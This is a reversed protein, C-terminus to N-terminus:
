ASGTGSSLLALTIGNLILHMVICARISGTRQYLFGLGLSLVFLSIPAPGQGVHALAFALSALVIAPWHIPRNGDNAPDPSEPTMQPGGYILAIVGASGPRGLRQLWGQLIMRFFFEEFIPAVIVASFWTQVVVLPQPHAVFRELSQHHYEVFDILFNQVVWVLPVWMAFGAAGALFGPLLQDRALGFDRLRHHYRRCIYVLVLAIGALQALGSGILGFSQSEPTLEAFPTALETDPPSSGGLSLGIALGLQQALAFFLFIGLVDLLGWRAVTSNDRGIGRRPDGPSRRIWKAWLAAGTLCTIWFVINEPRSIDWM